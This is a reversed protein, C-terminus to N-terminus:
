AESSHLLIGALELDKQTTIKMNEINGEVVHITYGLNEVLSADDTFDERYDQRYAEKLLSSNFVQPTQVLKFDERKVAKSVGKEIQRVSDTIDIVPIANGTKEAKKFARDITHRSVLPRVGDHIAVLTDERVLEVGSKVSHFRTNGGRVLTHNIAFPEERCLKKWTDTEGEPLVM